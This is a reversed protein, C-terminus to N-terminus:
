ATAYIVLLLTIIIVILVGLIAQGFPTLYPKNKKPM